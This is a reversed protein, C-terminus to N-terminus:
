DDSTWRLSLLKSMTQNGHSRTADWVKEALSLIEEYSGYITQPISIHHSRIWQRLGKQLMMRLDSRCKPSTRIRLLDPLPGGDELYDWVNEALELVISKEQKKHRYNEPVVLEHSVIRDFLQVKNMSSLESRNKVKKVKKKASSIKKLEVASSNGKAEHADVVGEVHDWVTYAHNLTEEM